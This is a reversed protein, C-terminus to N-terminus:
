FDALKVKLQLATVKSPVWFLNIVVREYEYSAMPILPTTLRASTYGSFVGGLIGLQVGFFNVPEYIAGFYNTRNNDSNMYTGAVINIEHPMEYSLGIGDNNQRYHWYSENTHWSRLGSTVWLSDDGAWASQYLFTISLAIVIAAFLGIPKSIGQLCEQKGQLHKAVRLQLSIGVYVFWCLPFTRSGGIICEFYTARDTYDEIKRTPGLM